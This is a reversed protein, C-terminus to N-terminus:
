TKEFTGLLILNSQNTNSSAKREHWRLPDEESAFARHIEIRRRTQEILIGNDSMFNLGNAISIVTIQYLIWNPQYLAKFKPFLNKSYFFISGIFLKM